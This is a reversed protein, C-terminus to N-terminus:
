QALKNHSKPLSVGFRISCGPRRVLRHEYNALEHRTDRSGEFPYTFSSGVLLKNFAQMVSLYSLTRNHATSNLSVFDYSIPELWRLISMGHTQNSYQFTVDVQYMANYLPCETVNGAKVSATRNSRTDVIM